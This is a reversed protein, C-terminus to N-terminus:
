LSYWLYELFFEFDNRSTDSPVLLVYKIFFQLSFMKHCQRKLYMNLKIAIINKYEKMSECSLPITQIPINKASIFACSHLSPEYINALGAACHM